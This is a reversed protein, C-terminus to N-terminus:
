LKTTFEVLLRPEMVYETVDHKLYKTAKIVANVDNRSVVKIKEQENRQKNTAVVIYQHYGLIKKLLNM